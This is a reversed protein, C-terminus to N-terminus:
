KKVPIMKFDYKKNKDVDKRNLLFAHFKNSLWLKLQDSYHPSMVNGSIGAPIIQLSKKMDSFDVIQRLTGGAYAGYPKSIHFPSPSVTFLSGDVPFPGLNFFYGLFASKKGFPHKITLTHIEGWKWDDVNNGLKNKLSSVASKFSKVFIDNMDETKPTNPNDFWVSKGKGIIERLVNCPINKDNGVYQEYLEPGLRPEFTNKLLDVLFVNFIAPAVMNANDVYNWKKLKEFASNELKSLKRKSLSKLIIPVWDRALLDLQDSMIKKFDEVGLKDKEKIMESIRVFRDPTAYSKTIVYPYGEPGIKNNANVIWGQKPNRLHPQKKGPVYGKWEYKGNWGPVPLDGSFGKRIPIAGLFYFGINGKKDAYVWNQGSKTYRAAEEIDDINRARNILYFGKLVQKFDPVTWRMAMPFKEFKRNKNIDDIIPGHRTTRIKFSVDEKGKVKITERSIKMKKWLGKYKYEDLNKPNVKEIYFDADDVHSNTVGWAINENAGAVVYPSGPVLAGSVNLTPTHVHALYWIGPVSHNLHPDNSFLANGTKSKKPSIVWSNSAGGTGVLNEALKLTKLFEMGNASIFKEEKPIISPSNTPYDIFLEKALKKGIKKIVAAHLLETKFSYNQAWSMYFMVAMSDLASWKKPTYSLLKFEVPLSNKNNKLFYNVGASFSNLPATVEPSSQEYWEKLSLTSALIRFLKDVQILSSGFIESLQGRGARRVMDMQFLRDQAMSYGLAFYADSDNKAYINPIGYSDRIIEVENSIGPVVERGNYNPVTSKLYLYSIGLFVILVFVFIGIGWKLIKM